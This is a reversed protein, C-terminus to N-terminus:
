RGIAADLLLDGQHVLQECKKALPRGRNGGAGLNGPGAPEQRGHIRDISRAPGGAREAHARQERTVPCLRGEAMLERGLDLRGVADVREDAEDRHATKELM